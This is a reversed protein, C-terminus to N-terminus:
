RVAQYLGLAKRILKGIASVIPFRQFAKVIRSNAIRDRLKTRYVTVAWRFLFFLPVGMLLGILLGGMVVSNNFRFLPLIPINYIYTFFGRLADTTLVTYGVAHLLPDFLPAILKFVALALLEAGLNVKLFLTLIFLAFWLLNNMPILALLFGLAMGTAVEGPRQNANIAILVQAIGKLVM